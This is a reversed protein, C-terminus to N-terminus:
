PKVIRIPRCCTGTDSIWEKAWIYEADSLAFEQVVHSSIEDNLTSQLACVDALNAKYQDILSKHNGELVSRAICNNMPAPAQGLDGRKDVYYTNIVYVHSPPKLKLPV